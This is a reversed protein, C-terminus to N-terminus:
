AVRPMGAVTPATGQQGNAGAMALRTGYRAMIAATDIGATDQLATLNDQQAKVNLATVTPDIAPQQYQPAQM